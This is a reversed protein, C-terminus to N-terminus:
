RSGGRGLSEWVEAIPTEATAQELVWGAERLGSAPRVPDRDGQPLVIAWRTRRDRGVQHLAAADAADLGGLLAIMVDEASRLHTGALARDLTPASSTRLEALYLLVARGSDGPEPRLVRGSTDVLTAAYGSAQLHLVISAAASVLWELRPDPPTTQFCRSRNDIIVVVGPDWALEERRVMLEGTRATSRWHIRRVDDGPRYGRILVDDTGVLTTRPLASETASGVGAAQNLAPLPYVRPTAILDTRGHLVRRHRAVGFPDTSHRSLPGILHRGRWRPRVEYSLQRTSRGWGFGLVAIPPDDGLAPPVTDSVTTVMGPGPRPKHLQLTCTAPQGVPVDAPHVARRVELRGATLAVFVGVPPIAALFIGPWLLDRQGALVATVVLAGGAALMTWGRATFGTGNM